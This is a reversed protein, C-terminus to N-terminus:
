KNNQALKRQIFQQYATPPPETSKAAAPAEVAPPPPEASAVPLSEPSASEGEGFGRFSLQELKGNRKFTVRNSEIEAIAIGPRAEEGPKLILTKNGDEIIVSSEEPRTMFFIASIQLDLNSEPLAERQVQEPQEQDLSGFIGLLHQDLSKNAPTPSSTTSTVEAISDQQRTTQAFQFAQWGLTALTLAPLMLWAGFKASRAAMPSSLTQLFSAM